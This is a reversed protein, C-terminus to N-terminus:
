VRFFMNWHFKIYFEFTQIWPFANSFTTQSIATMKERGWHTLGIVVAVHYWCFVVCDHEYKMPCVRIVIYSSYQLLLPLSLYNCGVTNTPHLEKDRGKIGAEPVVSRYWTSTVTLSCTHACKHPFTTKIFSAGSVPPQYFIWRRHLWHHFNRIFSM